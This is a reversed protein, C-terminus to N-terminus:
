CEKGVRREESRAMRLALGEVVATKGVGPDGLLLPNNKTRRILIQMMRQIETDRGVVPDFKGQLAQQVMDQSFQELLRSDAPPTERENRFRGLYPNYSNDGQMAATMGEYLKTPNHGSEQLLQLAMCNQEQLISLLLHSSSVQPQKRAISQRTARLVISKCCPTLCPSPLSNPVGIGVKNLLSDRLPLYDLGKSRLFRGAPGREEQLLSLLLHESGVYDHGLEAATRQSVRFIDQVIPHFLHKSRKAAPTWLLKM